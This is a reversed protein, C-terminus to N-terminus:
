CSNHPAAKCINVRKIIEKIKFVLPNNTYVTGILFVFLGSAIRSKKIAFYFLLGHINMEKEKVPEKVM